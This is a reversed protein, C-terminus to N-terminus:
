FKLWIWFCFDAYVASMYTLNRYLWSELYGSWFKFKIKELKCLTKINSKADM